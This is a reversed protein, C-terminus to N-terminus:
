ISGSMGLDKFFCGNKGGDIAGERSVRGGLIINYYILRHTLQSLKEGPEDVGGRCLAGGRGDAGVGM